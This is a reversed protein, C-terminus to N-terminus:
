NDAWWIVYPARMYLEVFLASKINKGLRQFIQTILHPKIKTYKLQLM